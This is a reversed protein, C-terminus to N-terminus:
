KNLGGENKLFYKTVYYAKELSDGRYICDSTDNYFYRITYAVSDEMEAICVELLSDGLKLELYWKGVKKFGFAKSFLKQSELVTNKYVKGIAAIEKKTHLRVVEMELGDYRPAVM